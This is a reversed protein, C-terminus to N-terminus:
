TSNFYEIYETNQIGNLNILEENSKDCINDVKNPQNFSDNFKIVSRILKLSQHPL